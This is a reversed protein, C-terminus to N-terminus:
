PLDHLSKIVAEHYRYVALSGLLTSPYKMFYFFSFCDFKLRNKRAAAEATDELVAARKSM